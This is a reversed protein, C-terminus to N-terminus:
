RDCDRLGAILARMRQWHSGPWYLRDCASCWSFHTHARQVYPPVRDAVMAPPAEVLPANCVPCRSCSPDPPPGVAAWVQRLQDELRESEVLLARVGRREALARDRTLILRGEARALRMVAFDDTDALYATDYGLVRLWKALRGLMADALLKTSKNLECSKPIM